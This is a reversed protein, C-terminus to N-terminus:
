RCLPWYSPFGSFPFVGLNKDMLVGEPESLGELLNLGGELGIVMVATALADASAATPAIITASALGPASYGNRPDIIHHHTFDQTNAQMYDGSTVVAQDDVTFNAILGPHESRPVQIGVWWPSGQDDTGSALLDGGAEVMVDLFDHKRM